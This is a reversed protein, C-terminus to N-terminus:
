NLIFEIHVIGEWSDLIFSNIFFKAFVSMCVDKQVYLSDGCVLTYFIFGRQERLFNKYVYFSMQPESLTFCNSGCVSCCFAFISQHTSKLKHDGRPQFVFLSHASHIVVNCRSFILFGSLRSPQKEKVAMVVCAGLFILCDTKLVSTSSDSSNCGNAESDQLFGVEAQPLQAVQTPCDVRTAAWLTFPSFLKFKFM